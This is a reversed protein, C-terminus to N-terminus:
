DIKNPFIWKKGDLQRVQALNALFFRAQGADFRRALFLERNIVPSEPPNIGSERSSSYGAAQRDNM